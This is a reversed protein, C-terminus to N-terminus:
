EYMERRSSWRLQEFKSLAYGVQPTGWFSELNIRYIFQHKVQKPPICNLGVITTHHYTYTQHIIARAQDNLIEITNNPSCFHEISSSTETEIRTKSDVIEKILELESMNKNLLHTMSHSGILHNNSLLNQIESWNMPTMDEINSDIQPNVKPRIISKFYAESGNDIFSPIIFFLGTLNRNRLEEAALLNNKLGDDFTILLHPKNGKPIISSLESPHIIEFRKQLLDLQRKFNSLFKKQTGHYNVVLLKSAAYNSEFLSLMNGLMGKALYTLGKNQTLEM